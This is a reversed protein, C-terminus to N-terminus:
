FGGLWAEPCQRFPVASVSIKVGGLLRNQRFTLWGAKRKGSRQSTPLVDGHKGLEHRGFSWDNKHRDGKDTEEKRNYLPVINSLFINNFQFLYDSYTAIQFTSFYLASKLSFPPIQQYEM